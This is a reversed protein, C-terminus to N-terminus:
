INDRYVETVQVSFSGYPWLSCGPSSIALPTLFNPFCTVQKIIIPSDQLKLESIDINEQPDDEHRVHQM